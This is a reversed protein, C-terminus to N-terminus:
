NFKQFTALEAPIADPGGRFGAMRREVVLHCYCTANNSSDLEGLPRGQTKKGDSSFQFSLGEERWVCM